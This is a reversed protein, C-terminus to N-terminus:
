AAIKLSAEGIGPFRALVSDGPVVSEMGTWSGTTVLDGSKLGGTRRACHEVIWPMVGFPDGLTHSGTKGVRLAGNVWLEVKQAGFDLERWDHVGSGTVLAANLQFDALRWLASASKWDALRTDCLEITVLAEGIAAAVENDSWGAARAPLDSRLRFAIETEVILMHHAKASIEAPAAIVVGIPAASLEAGPKAGGAKWAPARRGNYRAAFVRDQIEYAERASGPEAMASIDAQRGSAWAQELLGSIRDVGAGM